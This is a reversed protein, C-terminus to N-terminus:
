PHHGQQFHRSRWVLAAALLAGVSLALVDAGDFEGQPWHRLWAHGQLAARVAGLQALEFLLDLWWWAAVAVIAQQRTRAWVLATLLAFALVHVFSPLSDSLARPLWGRGQPLSGAAPMLWVQAPDRDLAYVVGGVALAALAWLLLPLAGAAPLHRTLTQQRPV